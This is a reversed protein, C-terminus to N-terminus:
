KNVLTLREQGNDVLHSIPIKIFHERGSLWCRVRCFFSHRGIAEGTGSEIPVGCRSCYNKTPEGAEGSADITWDYSKM